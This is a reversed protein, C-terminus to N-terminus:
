YRDVLRHERSGDAFDTVLVDVERGPRMSGRADMWLLRVQGSGPVDVVVRVWQTDDTQRQVEVVPVRLMEQHVVKPGCRDIYLLVALVVALGIAAIVARANRHAHALNNWFRGM